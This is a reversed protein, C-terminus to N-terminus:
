TPSSGASRADVASRRTTGPSCWVTTPRSRSLGLGGALRVHQDPSMPIFRGAETSRDGDYYGMVDAIVQTTGFQNYFNVIGDAPVRVIVM